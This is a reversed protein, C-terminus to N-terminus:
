VRVESMESSPGYAISVVSHSPTCFNKPQFKLGPALEGAPLPSRGGAERRAFCDLMKRRM